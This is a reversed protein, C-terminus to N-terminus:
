IAWAQQYRRRLERPPVLGHKLDEYFKKARSMVLIMRNGGKFSVINVASYAYDDDLSSWSMVGDLTSQREVHSTVYPPTGYYSGAIQTQNAGAAEGAYVSRFCGVGFSMDGQQVLALTVSPNGNAGATKTDGLQMANRVQVVSCANITSGDDYQQHYTYAGVAPNWMYYIYAFRSAYFVGCKYALPVGNWDPATAPISASHCFGLLLSGSVNVTTLALNDNARAELGSGASVVVSVDSM